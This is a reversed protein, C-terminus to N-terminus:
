LRRQLMEEPPKLARFSRWLALDYVIKLGGALLFPAATLAPNALLLGTLAPGFSAGVTRAVSTVGSAASREGPEVVALTYSQRTPVDMQSISSRILLLVVALPLTPMLPVLMLLVNSPLHTFVMTNILGIRRALGAAALASLGGLVNAGFFIGGLLGPEAGFRQQFWYALVSQVILAGGFADLAFLAALKFVTRRSRHLGLSFPGPSSPVPSLPVSAEIASSLRSFALLLAAGLLAYVIVVARYSELESAGSNQLLQALGGGSLAGLATAFAGALQYWALTGTRREGPLSQTLAAQEIALFPGVENGSPSLVGLTAAILLLWFERTAAFLVGVFIMLAAGLLLMRRRGVRDAVTTIWLAIATDGILTCTLLLGLREESLGLEALYLVLVVSILGYGFMRTMRTAFLRRGDQTLTM